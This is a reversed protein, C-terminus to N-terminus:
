EVGGMLRDIRGIYRQLDRRLKQWDESNMGDPASQVALVSQGRNWSALARKEETTLADLGFYRREGEQILRYDAQAQDTM